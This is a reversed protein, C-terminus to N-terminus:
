EEDYESEDYEEDEDYDNEDYEYVEDDDGNSLGFEREIQAIIKAKYRKEQHAKINSILTCSRDIIKGRRRLESFFSQFYDAIYEKTLIAKTTKKFLTIVDSVKDDTLDYIFPHTEHNWGNYGVYNEDIYKRINTPTLEKNRQNIMKNRATRGMKKM